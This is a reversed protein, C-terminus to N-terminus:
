LAKLRDVFDGLFEEYNKWAENSGKYIPKRVQALSASQVIAKKEYFKLCDDEWALGCYNILKRIVEDSDSVLDSYNLDLYSDPELVKDWYRKLDKHASYYEVIDDLDFSFYQGDSFMHKYCSFGVAVPDRDLYIIKAQPFMIKILGIFIFNLPLKDIVYKSGDEAYDSLLELYQEAKQSLEEDSVLLPDSQSIDCKINEFVQKLFLPEGASSVESHSSIIKEVLTSGSRPMSVIFIPCPYKESDYKIGQTRKQIYDGTFIKKFFSMVNIDIDKIGGTSKKVIDNGKKLFDFAKEFNGLKDHANSLAFFLCQQQYETLSQDDLLSEAHRLEDDESKFKKLFFLEYIVQAYNPKLKLIERFEARAKDFNGIHKEFKAREFRVSLDDPSLNVAKDLWQKAGSIDDLRALAFYMRFVLEPNDPKLKLGIKLIEVAERFLSRKKYPNNILAFSLDLYSDVLDPYNVINAQFFKLADAWRNLKLFTTGLLKCAILNKADYHLVELCLKVLEAYRGSNYLEKALDLNKDVWVRFDGGQNLPELKPMNIQNKNSVM